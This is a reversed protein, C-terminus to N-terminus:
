KKEEVIEPHLSPWESIQFAGQYMRGELHELRRLITLLLEPIVTRDIPVGQRGMFQLEQRFQNSTKMLKQVRPKAM